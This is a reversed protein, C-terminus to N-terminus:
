QVDRNIRTLPKIEDAYVFELVERAIVDRLCGADKYDVALAHLNNIFQSIEHDRRACKRNPAPPIPDLHRM